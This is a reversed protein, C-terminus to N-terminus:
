EDTEESVAKEVMAAINSVSMEHIAAQRKAAITRQLAQEHLSILEKVQDSLESIPYTTDGITVTAEEAQNQETM